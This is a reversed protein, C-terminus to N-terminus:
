ASTHMLSPTHSATAQMDSQKQKQTLGFVAYSIRMLSQLESTHEESRSGRLTVACPSTEHRPLSYETGGPSGPATTVTIWRSPLSVMEMVVSDPATTAACQSRCLAM